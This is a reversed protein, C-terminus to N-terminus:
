RSRVLIIPIRELENARATISTTKIESLANDFAHEILLLDRRTVLKDRNSALLQRDEFDAKEGALKEREKTEGVKALDAKEYNLRKAFERLRSHPSILVPVPSVEEGALRATAVKRRQTASHQVSLLVSALEPERQKIQDVRDAFDEACLHALVPLGNSADAVAKEAEAAATDLTDSMYKKFRQMREAGDPLLPQQCLVCAALGSETSTVPFDSDVYAESVSYDRAATWLARWSESGVGSLPEDSFLEDASLKATQRATVAADRMNTMDSLASDSYAAAVVECEDAVAEVWGILTNLDAVTATSAALISTVTNLRDQDEVLFKTAEDIEANTTAKTLARDFEQASTAREIAFAIKTLSLKNGLNTAQEAELREKLKLCVANLRHPLALGFPLFRIQNGGDVYLQASHTDFVAIQMLEPAASMGETWLIPTDGSGADIIIEATQPGSNGGYADALVKLKSPNEIRTRCATRLIRVFGSKGSGNRGYIVTLAKPCFVLSAKSVLRNVNEVNTLAKLVIPHKKGGGFHSKTFPVPTPAPTALNLGAAEKIMALLEDFDTETLDDNIALRRLADQRWPSLKTSWAEIDDIPDSAM